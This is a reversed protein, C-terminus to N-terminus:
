IKSPSGFSHSSGFRSPKGTTLLLSFDLGMGTGLQATKGSSASKLSSADIISAHFNGENRILYKGTM